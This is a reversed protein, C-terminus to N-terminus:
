GKLIECQACSVLIFKQQHIPVDQFPRGEFPTLSLLIRQLARQSKIFTATSHLCVFLPRVDSAPLYNYYPVSGDTPDQEVFVTTMTLKFPMASSIPM